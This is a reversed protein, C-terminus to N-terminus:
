APERTKGNRVLALLEEPHHVLFTPAFVKLAAASNYGWTCAAVPVKAKHASKVDRTEDGVYLMEEPRLSFTKLIAKMHKHKGTLKSVSSIFEFGEMDHRKLFLDVNEASNSTLIGLRWGEAVLERIATDMQAHPRIEELTARLMQTGRKLLAPVKRKPIRLFRIFERLTMDKARPVDEARLSLYGYEESLANLIQRGHELTDALTGDFDFVLLKFGM